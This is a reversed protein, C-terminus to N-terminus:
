RDYREKDKDHLDIYKKRVEDTMSNWNASIEKTVETVNAKADDALEKKKQSQVEIFYFMYASKTKKPM